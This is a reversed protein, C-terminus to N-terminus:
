ISRSKKFENGKERHQKLYVEWKEFLFEYEFNNTYRHEHKFMWVQYICRATM